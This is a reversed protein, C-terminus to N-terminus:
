CVGWVEPLLEHEVTVGVAADGVDVMGDNILLDRFRWSSKATKRKAAGVTIWGGDCGLEKSDM